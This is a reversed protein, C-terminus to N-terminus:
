ILHKNGPTNRMGKKYQKYRLLLSLLKSKRDGDNHKFRDIKTLRPFEVWAIYLRRLALIQCGLDQVFYVDITVCFRM